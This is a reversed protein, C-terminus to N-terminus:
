SGSDVILAFEKNNNTAQCYLATSNRNTFNHMEQPALLEDNEEIIEETKVDM